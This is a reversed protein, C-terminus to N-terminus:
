SSVAREACVAVVVGSKAGPGRPKPDGTHPPPDKQFVSSKVSRKPGTLGYVRPDM